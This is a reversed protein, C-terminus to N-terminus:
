LWAQCHKTASTKSLPKDTQESRRRVFRILTLSFHYLMGLGVLMCSVYPIMWSENTVVQLFTTQETTADYSSQYITDGAYRLPNNMWVRVEREVGNEPDRLILDSSYNKATQTGVYRDFRFDKLTLSYNKYYRKFRLAIRYESENALVAQEPFDVLREMTIPLGACSVLWVGLSDGSTKDLLEVYASPQNVKNELGSTGSLEMAVRSSGLGRTALNESAAM